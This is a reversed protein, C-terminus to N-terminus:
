LQEVSYDLFDWFQPWPKSVASMNEIRIPDCNLAQVMAYIQIVRHDNSRLVDGRMIVKFTDEMESIRDSEHGRLQPWLREGEEKTILGLGRAFCYDEAQEPIFDVEEDQLLKIFAEAQRAITLDYRAEWALGEGRRQTWHAVADYSTQLKFPPNTLRENDGCLVAASAWQSTGKDLELLQAQNWSVVSSDDNMSRSALTGEKKFDVDMDLKWTAYRLFRYLTGSENVPLVFQDGEVHEDWAKLCDHLAQLDTGMTDYYKSLLKRAEPFGHIMDLIGMRIMWSKDLPIFGLEILKNHM